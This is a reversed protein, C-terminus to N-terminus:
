IIGSNESYILKHIINKLNSLIYLKEKIIIFQLRSSQM